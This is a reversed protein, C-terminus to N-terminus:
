KEEGSVEEKEQNSKEKRYEIDHSLIIGTMEEIADTVAISANSCGRWDEKGACDYVEEQKMCILRAIMELNSWYAMEKMTM